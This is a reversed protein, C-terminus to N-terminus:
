YLIDDINIRDNFFYVTNPVEYEYMRKDEVNWRYLMQDRCVIDTIHMSIIYKKKINIHNIDNGICLVNDLENFLEGYICNYLKGDPLLIYRKLNVLVKM